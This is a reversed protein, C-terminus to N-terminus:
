VLEVEFSRWNKSGKRGFRCRGVSEINWTQGSERQFLKGLSIRSGRKLKFAGDKDNEGDLKNIFLDKERCIDIIEEFDFSESAPPEENSAVAENRTALLKRALSIVLERMDVSDTDGGTNAQRLELPDGFGAAFVIGGILESWQEFSALSSPGKPRGAQEWHHVLSWLACLMDRRVDPRSLYHDNIAHDFKRANIDVDELFLDVFLARRNSDKDVEAHNASVYIVNQKEVVFQRQGGMYRGKATPTTIWADLLPSAIKRKVNDYFIYPTNALATMELQKRLEEEDKGFAIPASEGFVAYLIMKCLVSKGSGAKNATYIFMPLLSRTPLMAMCFPTLMAAVHVALSRSLGTQPDKEDFPFHKLFNKIWERAEEVTWVDYKMDTPMTLIQTEYDYGPQLLEVRGDTRVVPLPISNVRRIQRQQDLFDFSALMPGAMDRNMSMRYEKQEGDDSVGRRYLWAHNDVYSRLANPSLEEVTMRKKNLVVPVQDRLFVGNTCLVAGVDRYFNALVRNKGPLLIKPFEPKEEGAPTAPESPEERPLVGKERLLANTADAQDSM